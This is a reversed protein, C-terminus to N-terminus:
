LSITSARPNPRPTMASVCAATQRTVLVVGPDGGCQKVRGLLNADSEDRRAPRRRRLKEAVGLYSPAAVLLAIGYGATLAAVTAAPITGAPLTHLVLAPHQEFRVKAEISEVALWADGAGM